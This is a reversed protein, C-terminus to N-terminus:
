KKIVYRAFNSFKQIELVAVTNLVDDSKYEAQIKNLEGENEQKWKWERGKIRWCIGRLTDRFSVSQLFAIVRRLQM